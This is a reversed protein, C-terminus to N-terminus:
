SNSLLLLLFSRYFQTSFVIEVVVCFFVLFLFTNVKKEIVISFMYINEGIHYM